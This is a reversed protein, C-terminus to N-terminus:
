VAAKKKECLIYIYYFLIMFIEGFMSIVFLLEMNGTAPGIAAFVFMLFGSLFLNPDKYKKIIVIGAIILPIVTGFTIINSITVAWAASIDAMSHRVNAGTTVLSFELSFAHVIGLIIFVWTVGWLIRMAKKGFKLGYGCIPLILPVLAGHCIFRLRTLFIPIPGVIGGLAVLVADVVLGVTTLLMCLVMTKRTSIYEKAFLILFVIEVAAVAYLVPQINNLLFDSM